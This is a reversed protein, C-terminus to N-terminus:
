RRSQPCRRVCEEVDKRLEAQDMTNSSRSNKLRALMADKCVIYVRQPVLNRGELNMRVSQRTEDIFRRREESRIQLFRRRTEDDIDLDHPDFSPMRDYVMNNIHQDSKSRVIFAEANTFQRCSSLIALDSELVCKDILMIICDFICLGLDKFYQWDPVNPTGAGPIAYWIIRSNPRPDPYSTPNDTTEVIGTRAAAPDNGRVANIFSSKGSGASGVVALHIFNPSYGHRARMQAIDQDSPRREPRVGEFWRREAALRVEEARHLAEVAEHMAQELEEQRRQANEATEHAVRRARDAAEVEERSSTVISLVMNEADIARRRAEEAEQRLTRM